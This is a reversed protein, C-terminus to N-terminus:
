RLPEAQFRRWLKPYRRALHKDDDKLPKGSPRLECRPMGAEPESYARVDGEGGKESFVQNAVYYIEEFEWLVHRGSGM